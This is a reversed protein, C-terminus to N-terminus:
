TQKQVICAHISRVLDAFTKRQQLMASLIRAPDDGATRLPAKVLALRVAHDAIHKIRVCHRAQNAAHANAMTLQTHDQAALHESMHQSRLATDSPPCNPVDVRGGVRLDEEVDERVVELLRALEADVLLVDEGGDLADHRLAAARVGADRHEGAEALVKERLHCAGGGKICNLDRDVEDAGDITVDLTPYQDVDGLLLGAQVILEKSQFGALAPQHLLGISSPRRLLPRTAGNTRIPGHKAVPTQELQADRVLPRSRNREFM